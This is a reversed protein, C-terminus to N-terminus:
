LSTPTIGLSKSVKLGKHFEKRMAKALAQPAVKRAIAHFRISEKVKANARLRFLPIIFPHKVSASRTTVGKAGKKPTSPYGWGNLTKNSRVAIWKKGKINVIFSSKGGNDPALSDGVVKKLTLDHRVSRFRLKGSGGRTERLAKAPLAVSTQQRLRTANRSQVKSTAGTFSSGEIHDAIIKAANSGRSKREGTKKKLKRFPGVWVEMRREFPEFQIANAVFSATAPRKNFVRKVEQRERKMVEFGASRLARMQAKKITKTRLTKAWLDFEKKHIKLDIQYGAM